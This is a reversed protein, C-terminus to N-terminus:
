IHFLFILWSFFGFFFDVVDVVIFFLIFGFFKFLKLYNETPDHRTRALKHKTQDPTHTRSFNGCVLSISQIQHNQHLLKANIFVAAAAAVAIIVNNSKCTRCDVGRQLVFVWPIAKSRM